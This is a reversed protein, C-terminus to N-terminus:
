FNMTRDRVLNILMVSEKIAGIAGLAAVFLMIFGIAILLTPPSLFHDDIFQSFDGFITQITVGVM